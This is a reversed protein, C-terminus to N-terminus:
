SERIKVGGIYGRLKKRIDMFGIANENRPETWGIGAGPKQRKVNNSPLGSCTSPKLDVKKANIKENSFKQFSEELDIRSMRHGRLGEMVSTWKQHEVEPKELICIGGM